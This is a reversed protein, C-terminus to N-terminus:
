RRPGAPSPDRRHSRMMTDPDFVADGSARERVRGTQDRPDQLFPLCHQVGDLDDGPRAADEVDVEVPIEDERLRHQPVVRLRVIDQREKALAEVSGPRRNKVQVLFFVSGTAGEDVVGM